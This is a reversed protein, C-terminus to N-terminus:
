HNGQLLHKLHERDSQALSWGALRNSKKPITIGHTAVALRLKSVHNGPNGILSPPVRCGSSKHLASAIAIIDRESVVKQNILATAVAMETPTLEM